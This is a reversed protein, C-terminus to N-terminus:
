GEIFAAFAEGLAFSDVGILLLAPNDRTHSIIDEVYPVQQKDKVSLLSDISLRNNKLDQPM